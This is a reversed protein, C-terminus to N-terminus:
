HVYLKHSKLLLKNILRGGEDVIKCSKGKVWCILEESETKHTRSRSMNSGGQVTEGLIVRFQGAIRRTNSQCGEEM